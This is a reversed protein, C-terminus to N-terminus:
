TQGDPGLNHGGRAYRLQTWSEEIQFAKRLRKAQDATLPGHGVGDTAIKDDADPPKAKLLAGLEQYVTAANQESSPLSAQLQEPATPLGALKMQKLEDQLTPLSDAAGAVSM